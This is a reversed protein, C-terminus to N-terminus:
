LFVKLLTWKNGTNVGFFKKFMPSNVSLLVQVSYPLELNLFLMVHWKFKVM